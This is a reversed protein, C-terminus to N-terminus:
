GAPDGEFMSMFHDNSIRPLVLWSLRCNSMEM